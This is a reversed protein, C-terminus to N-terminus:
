GAEVFRFWGSFTTASFSFVGLIVELLSIWRYRMSLSQREVAFGTAM